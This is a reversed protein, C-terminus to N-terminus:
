EDSDPDAPARDFLLWYVALAFCIVSFLVSARDGNLFRIGFAFGAVLAFGGAWWRFTPPQERFM